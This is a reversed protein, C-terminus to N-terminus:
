TIAPAARQGSYLGDMTLAKIETRTRISNRLAGTDESCLDKASGQILKTGKKVGKKMIPAAQTGAADLKALLRDLNKITSM